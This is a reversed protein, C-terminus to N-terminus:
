SNYYQYIQRVREQENGGDIIAKMRSNEDTIKGEQKRAKWINVIGFRGITTEPLGLLKCSYEGLLFQNYYLHIERMMKRFLPNKPYNAQIPEQRLAEALAKSDEDGERQTMTWLYLAEIAENENEPLLQTPIGLLYGVYKWFHFLGALEEQSPRIGIKKLGVLFVLSFGLNTALMDWINIPIGWKQSNWDTKELINVRSYSHIMRTLFVQRFGEQDKDLGNEKTIQVWFEVTDTLRKVAGKKLVGTYILPKNIAASEYGGMLCYDRLVILASLGSRRCFESGNKIKDKDLWDPELEIKGFFDDWIEKEKTPLYSNDIYRNLSNNSERFGKSLYLDIIIQDGLKDWSFLYPIMKEADELLPYYGLKLLLKKGAGNDWYNAFSTTNPKFRYPKEM